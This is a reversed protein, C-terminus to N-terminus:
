VSTVVGRPSKARWAMTDITGEAEFAGRPWVIHVVAGNQPESRNDFIMVAGSRELLTKAIFFGLGLGNGRGKKARADGDPRSTVYPEGLSDILDLPFGPGDDSITVSVSDSDWQAEVEVRRDAFDVANEIINGIGFIVGPRRQGVPEQAGVDSASDRPKASVAVFTESSQHALAAEDVIEHISIHAHMPDQESPRKTLKQLIERCREAQARLVQVDEGLADDKGFQHELEKAIVSITALPTGLEHAAAAALGDLAHLRQERALIHETASLAASMQRREKALRWSYFALFTVSASVAAILGQKYIYPLQFYLGEEWPLPEYYFVLVVTVAIAILGLFITNALRLTAASVTVPAMILMMFPNEIGGTLYLLGALQLLDYALLATAFTATLKHRAPYRVALFVNLWASVAILGLCWGIPMPFELYFAVIVVAILQGVVAIWRLRVTTLLRLQSADHSRDAHGSETDITLPM